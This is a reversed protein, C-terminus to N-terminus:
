LNNKSANDSLAVAVRGWTALQIGGGPPLRELEPSEAVAIDLNSGRVVGSMGVFAQMALSLAAIQKGLAEKEAQM